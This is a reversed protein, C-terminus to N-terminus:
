HDMLLNIPGILIYVCSSFCSYNIQGFKHSTQSRVRIIEDVNNRYVMKALFSSASKLIRIILEYTCKIPFREREKSLYDM